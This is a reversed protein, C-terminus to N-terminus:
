TFRRQSQRVWRSREVYTTWDVVLAAAIYTTSYTGTIEGVTLVFAFAELSSGGWMQM